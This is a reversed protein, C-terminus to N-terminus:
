LRKVRVMNTTGAKWVPHGSTIVVLEGRAAHGSNLIEEAADRIMEDTNGSATVLHPICGWFLCLRNITRPSPSLAIIPRKPRFRSIKRATLGSRHHM